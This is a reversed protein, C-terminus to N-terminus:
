WVAAAVVVVVAVVGADGVVAEADDAVALVDDGDDGNLALDEQVQRLEYFFEPYQSEMGLRYFELFLFLAPSLDLKSANLCANM